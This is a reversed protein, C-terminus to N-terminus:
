LMCLDTLRDDTSGDYDGDPIISMSRRSVPILLECEHMADSAWPAIYQVSAPM